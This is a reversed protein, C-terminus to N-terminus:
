NFAYPDDAYPNLSGESFLDGINSPHQQSAGMARKIATQPTVAKPTSKKQKRPGEQMATNRIKRRKSTPKGDGHAAEYEPRTVKKPPLPTPMANDPRVLSRPSKRIRSEVLQVSSNSRDQKSNVEADNDQKDSMVKWQMQLLARQRDEKSKQINLEDQLKRCVDEYQIRLAKMQVEHENRLQLIKERQGEEAQLEAHKLEESHHAKLSMEKRENEQQFQTILAAHEDQIRLLQQRSDAKQESIKRECNREMDHLLKNVKEKETNMIEAKEDEYKTRIETIAQDNRTSIEQLHKSLEREKSDLMVECQKRVEVLRSEATTLSAKVENIQDELKRESEQGQLIIGEKEQVMNQLEDVKKELSRVEQDHKTFEKQLNDIEDVKEQIDAQLKGTSDRNEEELRALKQLLEEMENESSRSSESLAAFKEKLNSLTFETEDKKKELAKAEAELKSIKRAALKQEESLMERTSEEAKELEYIKNNLEKIMLQMEERESTMGVVQNHLMDYQKNAHKSVLDKEEQVLKSSTDYLSNLLDFNKTFDLSQKDLQVLQATVVDVFSELKRIEDRSADLDNSFREKTLQLDSKEKELNQVAISSNKIEDDKLKLEVHLNELKSNLIRTDSQNAELSAEFHKITSDKEEILHTLRCKEEAFVGTKEKDETRLDALERERTTVTEETSTLKLSLDHIQQNLMDIANSSTSLKGEFFEKDKEADQIQVALRDLTESLQDCMSKTSCFSSELGNWLKEDEKREVRLKVNEHFANQLKEELARVNDASKKLKNNATELDTKLSAQEKVLKEAAIKLNTFSGLSMQDSSSRSPYSFSKASGSAAKFHDLSRLSPSTLKKMEDVSITAQSFRSFELLSPSQLTEEKRKAITTRHITS